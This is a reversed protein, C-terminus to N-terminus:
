FRELWRESGETSRLVCFFNVLHGRQEQSIVSKFIRFESEDLANKGHEVEFKCVM